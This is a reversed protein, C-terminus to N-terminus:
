RWNSRIYNNLWCIKELLEQHDNIILEYQIKLDMTDTCINSTYYYVGMLRIFKMCLICKCKKINSTQSYYEKLINEPTENLLENSIGREHKDWPINDLENLYIRKDDLPNLALKNQKQVTLNHYNSRISVNTLMSTSSNYLSKKYEEINIKEQIGKQKNKSVIGDDDRLYAYSKSRLTIFEYM